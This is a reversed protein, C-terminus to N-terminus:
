RLKELLAKLKPDDGLKTPELLDFNEKLSALKKDKLHDKRQKESECTNLGFQAAIDLSSYKM